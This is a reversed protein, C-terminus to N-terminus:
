RPPQPPLNHGPDGRQGAALPATEGQDTPESSGPCGGRGPRRLYPRLPTLQTLKTEHADRASPLEELAGGQGGGGGACSPIRTACSESMWTPARVAGLVM